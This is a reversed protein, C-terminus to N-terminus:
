RRAPSRACDAALVAQWPQLISALGVVNAGTGGWCPFVEVPADFVERLSAEAERTWPDAGYAIAAGANAASLADLVEPSVGAVNDSAFSGEPPPPLATPM